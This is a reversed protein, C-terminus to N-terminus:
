AVQITALTIVKDQFCIRRPHKVAMLAPPLCCVYKCEHEMIEIPLLTHHSHPSHPLSSWVDHTLSVFAPCFVYWQLLLSARNKKQKGIITMKIKGYRPSNMTLPKPSVFLSDKKRRSEEASESKKKKQRLTKM